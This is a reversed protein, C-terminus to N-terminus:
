GPVVRGLSQAFLSRLAADATGLDPDDDSIEITGRISSPASGSELRTSRAQEILENVVDSMNRCGSALARRKLWALNRPDLDVSIPKSNVTENYL